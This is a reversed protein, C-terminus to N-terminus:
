LACAATSSPLGASRPWRRQGVARRVVALQQGSTARHLVVGAGQGRHRQGVAAVGAFGVKAASSACPSVATTANPRSPLAPRARSESRQGAVCRM